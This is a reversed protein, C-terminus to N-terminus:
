RAFLHRQHCRLPSLSRCRHDSLTPSLGLFARYVTTIRDFSVLAPLQQQRTLVALSADVFSVNYRVYWALATRLRAKHPLKLNPLAIVPLVAEAIAAKSMRYYSQLLYVVEAIVLENTQAVLGGAEIRGIYASARPSHDAHDQRIHRVFINTDVVAFAAAM